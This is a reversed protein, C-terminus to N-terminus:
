LPIIDSKLDVTWLWGEVQLTKTIATTPNGNRWKYFGVTREAALGGTTNRGRSGTADPVVRLHENRGDATGVLAIAVLM